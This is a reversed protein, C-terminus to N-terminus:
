SDIDHQLYDTIVKITGYTGIDEQKTQLPDLQDNPIQELDESDIYSSNEDYEEQMSQYTKELGKVNSYLDVLRMVNSIQETVDKNKLLMDENLQDSADLSGFIHKCTYDNLM